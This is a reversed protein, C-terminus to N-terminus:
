LAKLTKSDNAVLHRFFISGRLEAERGGGVVSTEWSKRGKPKAPNEM